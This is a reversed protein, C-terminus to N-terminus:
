LMAVADHDVTALSRHYRRMQDVYGMFRELDSHVWGFHAAHQSCPPETGCLLLRDHQETEGLEVYVAGCTPRIV